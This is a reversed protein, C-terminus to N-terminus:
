LTLLYEEIIKSMPKDTKKSLQKLKEIAEISLSFSRTVQM